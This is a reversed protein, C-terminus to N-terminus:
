VHVRLRPFHGLERWARLVARLDAECPTGDFRKVEAEFDELAGKSGGPAESRARELLQRAAATLRAKGAEGAAVFRPMDPTRALAEYSESADRWAGRSEAERAQVFRLALGRVLPWNPGAVEAVAKALEGQMDVDDFQGPFTRLIEGRENQIELLPYRRAYYEDREKEGVEFLNIRVPIAQEVLSQITPDQFENKQFGICIPCLDVYGYVFIPRATAASVARAEELSELWRIQGNEVPSWSALVAPLEVDAPAPSIPAGIPIARLEVIEAGASRTRQWVLWGLAGLACLIVAAAVRRRALRRGDAGWAARALIADFSATSPTVSRVGAATEAWVSRFEAALRALEPDRDLERELLVREEPSSLGEERQRLRDFITREEPANM